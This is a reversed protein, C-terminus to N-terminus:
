KTRKLIRIWPERLDNWVESKEEGRYLIREYALTLQVMDDGNFFKDVRKAFNRLTEGDEKAFGFRKLQKLLSMYARAFSAHDLDKQYKFILWYPIWKRRFVYMLAIIISTGILTGILHHKYEDLLKSFSISEKKQEDQSGENEMEVEQNLDQENMNPAQPDEATQNEPIETETQSIDYYFDTPNEFGKTPEFPVWGINPLYAEVWSHANRNKIVYRDYEEDIEGIKEGPTYGKVWRAPIGISRLMVVMSTSFNDCYGTKTEFLFQDVYDEDEGPVAVNETDYTFEYSQLYREIAKAKDFRNDEKETLQIALEKVREPLSDPLQTYRDYFSNTVNLDYKSLNRLQNIEYSPPHYSTYYKYPVVDTWYLKDYSDDKEYTGNSFQSDTVSVYLKYIGYPYIIHDVEDVYEVNALQEEESFFENRAINMEISDNFSTLARNEEESKEWGKGTYLDKTEVRWYQPEPSNVIFVSTDDQIFPGGLRSDDEGYGVKKIRNGGGTNFHHDAYSQIFPVPDPWIPNAKPVVIGLTTSFILVSGLIFMWKKKLNMSIVLQNKEVLRYYNLIGLAFFGLIFTRIMAYKANYPFFTDVIALFLITFLLFYLMRMKVTIWYNLLYVLLWLLIFFLLTQFSDTIALWDRQFIYKMNTVLSYIFLRIGEGSLFSGQFYLFNIVALIYISNAIFRIFIPVNFFYYSFTLLLFFIFVNVNSINAIEKLPKLWEWILLFSITYLIFIELSKKRIVM